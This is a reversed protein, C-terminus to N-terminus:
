ILYKTDVQLSPSSSISLPDRDNHGINQCEEVITLVKSLICHPNDLRALTSKYVVWIKFAVLCPSGNPQM